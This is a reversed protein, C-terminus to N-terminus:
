TGVLMSRAQILESGETAAAAVEYAVIAGATPRNNQATYSGRLNSQPTAFAGYMVCSGVNSAIQTFGTGATRTGFNGATSSCTVIFCDTTTDIVTADASCVHSNTGAEDISSSTQVPSSTKCGSAEICNISFNASGSATVTITLTASTAAVASFIYVLHNGTATQTKDTAWTNVGDSVSFTRPNTSTQCVCVVLLNGATCAYSVSDSTGATVVKETASGVFATAM